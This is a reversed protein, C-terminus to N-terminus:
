IPRRRQAIEHLLFLAFSSVLLFPGLLELTAQEALFGVLAPLIAVGLSAAGVQYGIANTARRSGLRKPTATMLLPFLPALAFGMLALGLFSVLAWGQWWIMLSAVLLAAMSIRLATLVRIRNGFIGFFVRGATFSGWYIGVWQGATAVDIERNETFLTFSWQGATSELGAIFLFILIGLWVDIGSGQETAQAPAATRSAAAPKPDATTTESQGNRTSWRSLTFLIAIAIVLQAVGAAVYGWRWSLGALLLATVLIPGLTAGFGFAAHLLNMLRPGFNIAFFSNMGADLAGGGAGVLLGVAVMILWTPSLAYGFLGIAAIAAGFLLLRGNGFRGAVRGSLFSFAIYGIQSSFLLAGVQDQTLRFGDRISPWAVGLMSSPLGLIVFCAFSLLIVFLLMRQSTYYQLQTRTSMFATELDHVNQKGVCYGRHYMM